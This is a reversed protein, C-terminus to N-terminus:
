IEALLNAASRQLNKWAARKTERALAQRLLGASLLTNRQDDSRTVSRRTAQTPLGHTPLRLACAGRV